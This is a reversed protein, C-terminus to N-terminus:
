KIYINCEYEGPNELKMLLDEDIIQKFSKLLDLTM